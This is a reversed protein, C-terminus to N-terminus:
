RRPRSWMSGLIGGLGLGSWFGGGGGFPSFGWGSGWSASHARPAVPTTSPYATNSTGGGNVGCFVNYFIFGVVGMMLLSTWTQGGGDDYVVSLPRHRPAGYRNEDMYAYRSQMLEFTAGCSGVLVYPDDPHDYGECQGHVTITVTPYLM